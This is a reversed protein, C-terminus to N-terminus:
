QLEFMNTHCKRSQWNIYSPGTWQLMGGPEQKTKGPHYVTAQLDFEGKGDWTTKARCKIVAAYSCVAVVRIVYKKAAIHIVAVKRVGTSIDIKYSNGQNTSVSM